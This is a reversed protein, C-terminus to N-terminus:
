LEDFAKKYLKRHIKRLCKAITQQAYRKYNNMDGMYFYAKALIFYGYANAPDSWHKDHNIFQNAHHIAKNYKKQKLYYNALDIQASPFVEKVELAKLYLTEARKFQKNNNAFIAELYLADGESLSKLKKLYIKGEEVDGGAIGPAFLLSSTHFQLARVHQPDLEVAKEASKKINKVVAMKRFVNIEQMYALHLIGLAYHYEADNPDIKTALKMQKIAQKANDAKLLSLGYYYQFEGNSKFTNENKRFYAIAKNYEANNFFRIGKKFGVQASVRPIMLISFLVVLSMMSSFLLKGTFSYFNSYVINKGM